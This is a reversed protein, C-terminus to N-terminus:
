DENKKNRVDFIFSGVILVVADDKAIVNTVLRIDGSVSFNNDVISYAMGKENLIAIANELKEGILNQM